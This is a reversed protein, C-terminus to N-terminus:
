AIKKFWNAPSFGQGTSSRQGTSGKDRKKKLAVVPERVANEFGVFINEVMTSDAQFVSMPMGQFIM